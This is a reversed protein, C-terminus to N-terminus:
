QGVGAFVASQMYMTIDLVYPGEHSLCRDVDYRYPDSSTSPKLNQVRQCLALGDNRCRHPTLSDPNSSSVVNFKRIVSVCKRSTYNRQEVIRRPTLLQTIIGTM